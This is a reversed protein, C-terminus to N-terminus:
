EAKLPRSEAQAAHDSIFMKQTGQLLVIQWHMGMEQCDNLVIEQFRNAVEKLNEENKEKQLATYAERLKTKKDKDSIAGILDNTITFSRIAKVIPNRFQAFEEKQAAGTIVFATKHSVLIFQLMKIKGYQNQMTIETLHGLGGATKFPGLDRWENEGNKEHIAKVIKLYEKLSLDGIEETAININPPFSNIAKGFFGAEVNPSLNKPDACEWKEPPVFFYFPLDAFLSYGCFLALCLIRKLFTTLTITLM